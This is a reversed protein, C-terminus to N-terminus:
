DKGFLIKLYDSAAFLIRDVFIQDQVVHCFSIYAKFRVYYYGTFLDEYYLPSASLPFDVKDEITKLLDDIYQETIEYSRSATFVEDYVRDLDRLAISSFGPKM